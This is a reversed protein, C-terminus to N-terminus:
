SDRDVKTLSQSYTLSEHEIGLQKCASYLLYVCAAMLLHSIDHFNMYPHLSYESSFVIGPLLSATFAWVTLQSGKTGAKQHYKYFLPLGILVMGIVSNVKVLTFVRTSPNIVLLCYVIFQAIIVVHMWSLAKEGHAKQYYKLASNELCLLAIASWTWGIAKANFGVIYQIAHGLVGACLTAIGIFLFYRKFWRHAQDNLGLRQLRFFSLVGVVGTVVDTLSTMPEEILFGGIEASTYVWEM